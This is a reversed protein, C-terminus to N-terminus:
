KGGGKQQDSQTAKQQQNDMLGAYTAVAKAIDGVSGGTEGGVGTIIVERRSLKGREAQIAYLAQQPTLGAGVETIKKGTLREISEVLFEQEITEATKQQEERMAAEYMKAMDADAHVIRPIFVNHVKVGWRELPSRKDKDDSEVPERKMEKIIDKEFLDKQTILDIDSMESGKQRLTKVALDGLGREVVEPGQSLFHYPHIVRYRIALRAKMQVFRIKKFDDLELLKRKQEQEDKIETTKNMPPLGRIAPVILPRKEEEAEDKPIPITKERLDVIEVGMVPSPLIWNLGEDLMWNKQRKGFILPVGAHQIPINVLGLVTLIPIVATCIVLTQFLSYEILLTAILQIITIVLLNAFLLVIFNGWKPLRWEDNESEQKQKRGRLKKKLDDINTLIEDWNKLLVLIVFVGIALSAVCALIILATKM